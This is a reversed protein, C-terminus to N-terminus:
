QPFYELAIFYSIGEVYNNKTQTPLSISQYTNYPADQNVSKYVNITINSSVIVSSNIGIFNLYCDCPIYVGSNSNSGSGFNWHFGSNIITNIAPTEAWIMFNGGISASTNINTITTNMNNIQTQIPSTIDKFYDGNVNEILNSTISDANIIKLGNMSDSNLGNM